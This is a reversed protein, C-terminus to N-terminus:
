RSVGIVEAVEEQIMKAQNRATKLLQVM